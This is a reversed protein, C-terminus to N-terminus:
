GSHSMEGSGVARGQLPAKVRDGRVCSGQYRGFTEEAGLLEDLGHLGGFELLAEKRGAGGHRGKGERACVALSSGRVVEEAESREHDLEEATAPIGVVHRLQFGPLDQLGLKARETREKHTDAWLGHPLVGEGHVAVM